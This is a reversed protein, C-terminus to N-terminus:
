AFCAVECSMQRRSAARKMAWKLKSPRIISALAAGLDHATEMMFADDTKGDPRVIHVTLATETTSMAWIHLDHVETVGPLAALYSHVAVPDVGPPVADLAMNMADSMLRWSSLFIAAALAISTLPDLWLWGTVGILFAAV